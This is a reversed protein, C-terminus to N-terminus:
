ELVFNPEIQKLDLSKTEIENIIGFDILYIKRSWKIALIFRKNNCSIYKKYALRQNEEIRDFNFIGIKTQWIKLKLWLLM